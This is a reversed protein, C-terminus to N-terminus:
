SYLYVDLGNTSYNVGPLERLAGIYRLTHMIVDSLIANDPTEIIFLSEFIFYQFYILFTFYDADEPISPIYLRSRSLLHDRVSNDTNFEELSSLAKEVKYLPIEFVSGDSNFYDGNRFLYQIIKPNIGYKKRPRGKSKEEDMILLEDETMKNLLVAIRNPYRLVSSRSHDTIAKNIIKQFYQAIHYPHDKGFALYILIMVASFQSFTGDDNKNPDKSKPDDYSKVIDYWLDMSSIFVEKYIIEKSFGFLM